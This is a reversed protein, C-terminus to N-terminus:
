AVVKEGKGIVVIGPRSVTFHSADLEPDTGIRAGPAVTVNKDIIARRIVAGEGIRVQDMIVSSEVLAGQDVFVGPSIVSHRVTGGSIISGASVISNYAQGARGPEEFM